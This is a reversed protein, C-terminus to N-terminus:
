RVVLKQTDNGASVFYIGNSLNSIDLTNAGIRGEMTMVTQGTLNSVKVEANRNLTLSVQGEAPNPFVMLRTNPETEPIAGPGIPIIDDLDDLNYTLGIYFNDYDDFDDGQVYSGTMEDTQAVVVLTHGVVAVQPYVFENYALMLDDTLPIQNIWSRGGDWSCSAFLKFYFNGAEDTNYPTLAMFVAIMIDDNGPVKCLIPMAVPGCNYDGHLSFDEISFGYNYEDWVFGFYEPWSNQWPNQFYPASNWLEHIYESEMVFPEGSGQYPLSESWFAVGGIAPDLADPEGTSCNFEYAVRLEGNNGWVCSTWRPYFFVNNVGPHQYFLKREWTEGDDYSYLVMGDSWPNNVVLALCNDDTTEMWHAVNNGWHSGYPETLYPLIVNEKDWTEGGDSSRFYYLKDDYGTAIIHIIDRNTGSTMVSPNRPEYDNNLYSIIEACGYTIDDKNDVRYVGLESLTNAAVVISNEGYRAISGFGTKEPEVRADYHSWEGTNADYTSIGTGRDSYSEDSSITYAFSVKGDPWVITRNINGWDTQWDYTTYDLEEQDFDLRVMNPQNQVQAYGIFSLLLALTLIYSKKM